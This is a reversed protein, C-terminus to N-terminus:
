NYWLWVLLFYMALIHSSLFFYLSPFLITPLLWSQHILLMCISYMRIEFTDGMFVIVDNNCSLDVM